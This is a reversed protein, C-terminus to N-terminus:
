NIIVRFHEASVFKATVNNEYLQRFPFMAEPFLHAQFFTKQVDTTLLAQKISIKKTNRTYYLLFILVKAFILLM